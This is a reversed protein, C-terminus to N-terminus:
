YELIIINFKNPNDELKFILSEGSTFTELKFTFYNNNLLNTVKKSYYNLIDKDNDCLCINLM